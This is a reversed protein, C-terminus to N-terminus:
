KSLLFKILFGIVTVAGAVAAARLEIKDIRASNTRMANALEDVDTRINEIQVSHVSVPGLAITMQGSLTAVAAELRKVARGVEGLTIDDQDTMPIHGSIAM